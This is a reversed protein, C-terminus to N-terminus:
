DRKNAAGLAVLSLTAGLMFHDSPQETNPCALEPIIADSAGDTFSAREPLPMVGLVEWKKPSVFIYDICDAFAQPPEGSYAVNTVEPEVGNAVAYASDFLAGESLAPTWKTEHAPPTPYHSHSPALAGTTLLEYAGSSTKCNFDGMLVVPQAPALLLAGSKKHSKVAIKNLHQALLAAHITMVRNDWWLCPMHYTAVGFGVHAASKKAANKPRLHMYVSRNWRRTAAKYADKERQRTGAGPECERKPEAGWAPCLNKKVHRALPLWLTSLTLAALVVLLFDYVASASACLKSPSEPRPERKWRTSTAIQAVDSSLLEYHEHSYALAVGMYDNWKNGYHTSLQVNFRARALLHTHSLSHPTRAGLVRRFYFLMRVLTYGRASFWQTLPGVWRLSVEQLAFIPPPASTSAADQQNIADDLKLKLKEFRKTEDMVKPDAKPFWSARALPASLLNYTVFRHVSSALASSPAGDSSSSSSSSAAAGAESSTSASEAKAIAALLTATKGTAPIGLEKARAQLERYSPM